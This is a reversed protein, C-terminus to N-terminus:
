RKLLEVNKIEVAEVKIGWAGTAENLIDRIKTTILHRKHLVEKVEMDGIIPILATQALSITAVRYNTIEFYAKEPNIIRISITIDINVLSEDKTIIENNPVDFVQTRTDMRVVHTTLPAVWRFGPNLRGRYSGLRIELGVEWPNIIRVGSVFIIM